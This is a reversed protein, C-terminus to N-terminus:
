LQIFWYTRYEFWHFTCYTLPQEYHHVRLNIIACSTKKGRWAWRKAKVPHGPWLTRMLGKKWWCCCAPVSLFLELRGFWPARLHFRCSAPQSLQDTKPVMICIYLNIRWILMTRENRRGSNMDSCRCSWRLQYFTVVSSSASFLPYQM